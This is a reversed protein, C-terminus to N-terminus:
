ICINKTAGKQYCPMLSIDLNFIDVTVNKLTNHSPQNHADYGWILLVNQCLQKM